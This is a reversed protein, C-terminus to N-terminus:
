IEWLRVWLCGVGAAKGLDAQGGPAEAGAVTKKSAVVLEAQRCRRPSM